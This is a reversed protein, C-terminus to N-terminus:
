GFWILMEGLYNPCSVYDYLFGRPIKYKRGSAEEIITDSDLTEDHFGRPRETRDSNEKAEAGEVDSSSYELAFDEIVEESGNSAEKKTNSDAIQAETQSSPKRLQMLIHDARRNIYYGTAYVLTGLILRPDYFYEVPYVAKRSIFTSCLYSNSCNIMFGSFVVLVNMTGPNQLVCLPWIFTRQLYHLEWLFLLFLPVLLYTSPEYDDQLVLSLTFCLAFLVSSPSEM